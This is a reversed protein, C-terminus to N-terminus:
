KLTEPSSVAQFIPKHFLQVNKIFWHVLKLSVQLLRKALQWVWIPENSPFAEYDIQTEQSGPEPENGRMYGLTLIRIDM